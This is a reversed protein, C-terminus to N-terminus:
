TSIQLPVAGVILLNPFPDHSVDRPATFIKTRRLTLIDWLRDSTKGIIGKYREEMVVLRRSLEPEGGERGEELVQEATEAVSLASPNAQIHGLSRSLGDGDDSRTLSHSPRTTDLHHWRNLTPTLASAETPACGLRRPEVSVLRRQSAPGYGLLNPAKQLNQNDESPKHNAYVDHIFITTPPYPVSLRCLKNLLQAFLTCVRDLFDLLQTLEAGQLRSM